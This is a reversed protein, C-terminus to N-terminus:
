AGADVVKGGVQSMPEALPGASQAPSRIDEETLTTARFAKM